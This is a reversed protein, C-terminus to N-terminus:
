LPKPATALGLRTELSLVVGQQLYTDDVENQNSLCWRPVLRVAEERMPSFM